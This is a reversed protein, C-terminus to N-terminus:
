APMTPAAFNAQIFHLEYPMPCLKKRRGEEKKRRGEEKM